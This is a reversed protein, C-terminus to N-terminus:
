GWGYHKTSRETPASNNNTDNILDCKHNLSWTQLEAETELNATM